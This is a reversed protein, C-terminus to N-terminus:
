KIEKVSQNRLIEENAAKIGFISKINRSPKILLLNILIEETTIVFICVLVFIIYINLALSEGFFYYLIPIIFLFLALAKNSYTHLLVMEKHRFYGVFGSGIKFTLGIIYAPFLWSFIDMAPMMFVIAIIVLLMDAISDLVAGLESKADKIRRALPGDIMDTVGAIIYFVICHIGFPPLFILPICCVIRIITLANPLYKLSKMM